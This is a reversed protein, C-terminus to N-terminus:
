KGLRQFNHRLYQISNFHFTEQHSCSINRRNVSPMVTSISLMHSNNNKVQFGLEFKFTMSCNLASRSYFYNGMAVLLFGMYNIM